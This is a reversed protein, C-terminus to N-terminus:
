HRDITWKPYGCEKSTSTIHRNEEEKDEEISIITKARHCLTRVVALKHQLPQYSQFNLYQDTHMAKLFVKVKVSGDSQKYTLTDLFALADNEDGESTFKIDQDLSNLHQTFSETHEVKQKTHTDDVYRYWWAPPHTATALAHNEFEEMYINCVIPSIPPGMPAGHIQLYFHGRFTFYTCKLCLTLLAAIDDPSLSTRDPLSENNMLRQRIVSIAKEVPFSTFLATVDYPRMEEDEKVRKDKITKTFESSNKVHHISQGVLPKVLGKLHKALNDTISGISSVIPRLPLNAKHVKPLGYFRPATDTTPYLRRYLNNSLMGTEKLGRLQDAIEKKYKQTPDRSLKVYTSEDPLLDECKSVYEETNMVVACRGKDAPLITVSKDNKLDRLAERELRDLNQEVKLNAPKRLMSCMTARLQSAKESSLNKALM